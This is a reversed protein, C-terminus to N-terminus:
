EIFLIIKMDKSDMIKTGHYKNLIINLISKNSPTMNKIDLPYQVHLILEKEKLNMHFMFTENEKVLSSDLVCTLLTTLDQPDMSDIRKPVHVQIDYNLNHEQIFNQLIVDM